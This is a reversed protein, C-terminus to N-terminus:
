FFRYPSAIHTPWAVLSGLAMCVFDGYQRVVTEHPSPHIWALRAETGERLLDHGAGLRQHIDHEPASLKLFEVFGNLLKYPSDLIPYVIFFWSISWLLDM